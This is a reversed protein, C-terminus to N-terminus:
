DVAPLGGVEQPSSSDYLIGLSKCFTLVVEPREMLHVAGILAETLDAYAKSSRPLDVGPGVVLCDAFGMEWAVDAFKSNSQLRQMVISWQSHPFAADRLGSYLLLKAVNDGLNALPRSGANFPKSADKYKGVSVHTFVEEVLASDWSAVNLFPFKTNLREVPDNVLTVKREPMARCQLGLGASTTASLDGCMGLVAGDWGMVLGGCLPKERGPVDSLVFSASNLGIHIVTTESSFYVDVEDYGIVFVKEFYRPPRVYFPTSLDAFVNKTKYLGRVGTGEFVLARREPGLRLPQEADCMTYLDGGVNVAMGIHQLAVTVPVLSAMAAKAVHGMGRKKLTSLALAGFSGDDSARSVTSVEDGELLDAFQASGFRCALLNTNTEASHMGLLAM